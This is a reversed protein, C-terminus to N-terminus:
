VAATSLSAVNPAVGEDFQSVSMSAIASADLGAVQTASIPCTSRHCHPNCEDVGANSRGVSRRGARQHAVAGAPRNVLFDPREVAERRRQRLDRRSRVSYSTLAYRQPPWLHRSRDSVLGPSGLLGPASMENLESARLASAQLATMAQIDSPKLAAIVTASMAAIQANTAGSIISTM